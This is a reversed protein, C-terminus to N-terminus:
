PQEIVANLLFHENDVIDLLNQFTFIAILDGRVRKEELASLNTAM